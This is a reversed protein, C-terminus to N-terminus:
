IEVTSYAMQPPLFLDCASESSLELLELPTAKFNSIPEPVFRSFPRAVVSYVPHFRVQLRRQGPQSLRSPPDDPEEGDGCCM